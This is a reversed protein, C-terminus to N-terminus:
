ITCFIILHIQLLFLDPNLVCFFPTQCEKFATNHNEGFGKPDVNKLLYIKEHSYISLYSEPTNITIIIRSIEQYSLLQSLLRDLLHAHNHSVISVSIM